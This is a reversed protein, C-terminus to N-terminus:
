AFINPYVGDEIWLAFARISKLKVSALLGPTALIVERVNGFNVFNAEEAM